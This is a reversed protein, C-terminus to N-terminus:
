NFETINKVNIKKILTWDTKEKYPLVFIRTDHNGILNEDFNIMKWMKLCHAISNRRLLDEESVNGFGAEGNKSITFKFLQKFHCLYIDGFNNFLHCSQYLKKNKVDAIGMRSLTEEVIKQDVLLTIKLLENIM